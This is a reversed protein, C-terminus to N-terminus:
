RSPARGRYGQRHRAARGKGKVEVEITHDGVPGDPRAAFGLVYQARLRKAITVASEKVGNPGTISFFRGGTAVALRSLIEAYDPEGPTAPRGGDRDRLALVYVPIQARRVTERAQEPTLTSANDAGDTILVAAHELTPRHSLDIRPLWAVADHLATTGYGRWAALAELLVPVRDTFPVEVRATGSAFSAIAVEDGRRMQALLYRVAQRSARLKGGNAMSGSLDQLIVLSLSADAGRDFSGIPVPEGDVVLTFDEEGLDDVYGGAGLVVVPVTVWAVSAEGSFQLLPEQPRVPLALLLFAWTLGWTSRLRRPSPTTSRSV